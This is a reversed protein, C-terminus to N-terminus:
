SPVITVVRYVNTKDHTDYESRLVLVRGNSKVPANLFRKLSRGVHAPSFTHHPLASPRLFDRLAQADEGPPTVSVLESVKKATFKDPWLRILIELAGALSLTGEDKEAVQTVFVEEFDLKGGIQKVAHEVASGVLRWWMKFRTKGEVDRPEKLQPNGLLITYLAALIKDRNDKTWGLADGHTFNRNEPDPRETMLLVELARTALDDKAGINNGTFVQIASAAAIAIETVGLRRDSYFAATCAREIHPCSIQSGKEINDWLVYAVGQVFLSLLTKRRENEDTAWAAAAPMVGLVALVLMTFLTTKGTGPKGANLFFCPRDNLLSREIMTLALAVIIAKGANDTLVDVLWEDCLFEMAAKVAAETCDRPRPIVARLEPPIVFQIGRKRDLGDPGLLAGDALVLPANAFAVVTPLVGDDRRVYHNVFSMQLHVSRRNGDRDETYFEIFREILEATQMDDMKTIAWQEPPPLGETRKAETSYAHTEPIRRKRVKAMDDDADRVPPMNGSAVGIVENLTNMVPLWEDSALPAPLYPRPDLRRAAQHALKAQIAAAAQQDREAKLAADIVPMVAGTRKKALLRLTTQEYANLDAGAVGKAYVEVVDAVDAAEMLKRVARAGLKLEYRIGGHAFSNIWPVGDARLMIKAKCRGYGIGEIPDALTKGEFGAPDALVDGVTVGTLAAEDFPLVVDPLLVGQGWRESTRRAIEASVGTAELEAAKEAIFAARAKAAEPELRQRELRKLEDLRATELLSLPPCALTTDLLEGAKIEPQRAKADQVLPDVLVPPGEFVLRESGGVIRDVISRELLAGSKSPTMWGFGALWCRDHLAHLFREIDRGDKVMVYTHTGDSGPLQEGTDTRSLGASTSARTARAAGNLEPLVMELAPEVGGIRKLEAAVAASMGRSDYDLLAFAPGDGFVFNEGTRAVVNPKNSHHRLQDDTVIVVRDPLDARTAGLALAQESTMSRITLCLGEVGYVKIRDAVGTSLVCASGDKAITGDPKLSIKKTIPGTSSTFKTITIEPGAEPPRPRPTPTWTLGEEAARRQLYAEECQPHIWLVGGDALGLAREAGDPPNLGCQACISHDDTPGLQGHM